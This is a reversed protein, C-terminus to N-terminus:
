NEKKPDSSNNKPNPQLRCKEFAVEDSGLRLVVLGGSLSREYTQLLKEQKTCPRVLSDRCAENCSIAAKRAPKYVFTGKIESAGIDVQIAM